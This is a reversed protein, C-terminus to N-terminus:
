KHVSYKKMSLLMDSNITGRKRCFPCVIECTDNNIMKDICPYCLMHKEGCKIDFLKVNDEFCITCDEGSSSMIINPCKCMYHLKRNGKKDCDDSLDVDNVIEDALNDLDVGSGKSGNSGCQVLLKKHCTEINGSINIFDTDKNGLEMLEYAYRMNALKNQVFEIIQEYMKIKKGASFDLGGTLSNDWFYSDPLVNNGGVVTQYDNMIKELVAELKNICEDMTDKIILEEKVVSFNYEQINKEVILMSGKRLCHESHGRKLITKCDYNRKKKLM